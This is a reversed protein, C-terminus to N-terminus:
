VLRNWMILQLSLYCDSGKASKIINGLPFSLQALLSAPIQTGVECGSGEGDSGARGQPLVPSKAKPTNHDGNSLGILVPCHTCTYVWDCIHERCTAPPWCSGTLRVTLNGPLESAGELNFSANVRQVRLAPVEGTTFLHGKSYTSSGKKDLRQLSAAWKRNGTM